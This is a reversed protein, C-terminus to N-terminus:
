NTLILIERKKKKSFKSEPDISIDVFNKDDFNKSM